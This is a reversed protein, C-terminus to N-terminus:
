GDGDGRPFVRCTIAEHLQELPFPKELVLVLQSPWTQKAAFCFPNASCLIAKPQHEVDLRDIETLLQRGSMGPMQDDSILLDFPSHQLKSLAELGDAASEVDRAVEWYPLATMLVKRFIPDDDVVLVRLKSTRSSVRRKPDIATSLM